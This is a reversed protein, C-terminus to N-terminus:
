NFRFHKAEPNFDSDVEASADFMHDMMVRGQEAARSPPGQWGQGSIAQKL